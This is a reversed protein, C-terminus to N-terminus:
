RGVGRADLFPALAAAALAALVLALEGDVPARFRPYAAFPAWGGLLAGAALGLLALGAAAFALDHRSWPRPMRPPRAAGGYGRVELTAAVDLARELAGGTVARLVVLRGGTAGRARRADGLRQADRALVGVMRTALTTALASRYSFRRLGRLVADPDVAVSWLAFLAILVLARLGLVGGYLTAELTIDLEGLVPVSGGRAIVTLGERVVLLNLLAILAAFPLGWTLARAVPGLAQAAAAAALVVLLAVLLAVPHGVALVAVVLGVWWLAAAGARAAHLPTPRWRYTV